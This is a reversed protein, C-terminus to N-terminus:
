LDFLNICRFQDFLLNNLFLGNVENGFISFHNGLLISNKLSTLFDAFIILFEKNIELFHLLIRLVPVNTDSYSFFPLCFLPM